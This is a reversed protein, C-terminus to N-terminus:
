RDELLDVMYAMLLENAQIAYKKGMEIIEDDYYISM